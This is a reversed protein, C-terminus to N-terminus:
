EQYFALGLAVVLRSANAELEKASVTPAYKLGTFPNWLEVKLDLSKAFVETIGSLLSNGGTLYFTSIHTNKETIFYDFSLRIESILNNLLSECANLIENAKGKPNTKLQKAEAINVGMVNSVRKAFEQGGIFIDRTFRPLNDKLIMLNSVSEGLDLVAIANSKIEGSAAAEHSDEIGLGLTHFVNAIALSNLGVYSAQLGANTLLQLREGIVEKKAAAVLVSMKKDKGKPDLIYCDTHIQDQPFPLYKDAEFAFSKKLEELSMRPLDIYRILTGKGFVATSPSRTEVQAKELIKKIAATVNGGEIPAIAWKLIEYTSGTKTVEVLKVSESGIDLGVSPEQSKAPLFKKVLSLYSQLLQSSM